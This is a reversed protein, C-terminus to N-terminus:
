GPRAACRAVLAQLVSREESHVRLGYVGPVGNRVVTADFSGGLGGCVIRVDEGIELRHGPLLVLVGHGSADAVSGSLSKTDREVTVDARVPVREETRREEIREISGDAHLMVLDGTDLWQMAGAVGVVATLEYERAQIAAHSLWGGVETVIGRARPFVPTWTPDTFRAVLVEGDRFTDIEQSARLVRARGVVGGAGSVRLGRLMRDSAIKPGAACTLDLAELGGVTVEGSLALSEFV